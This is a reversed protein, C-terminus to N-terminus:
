YYEIQHIIVSTPKNNLSIIQKTWNGYDDYEYLHKEHSTVNGMVGYMLVEVLNNREDYRYITKTVILNSKLIIAEIKNNQDDYKYRTIVQNNKLLDSQICEIVNDVSDSTNIEKLKLKEHNFYNTERLKDNRDFVKEITKTLRSMISVYTILVHNGASDLNMEQKSIIKGEANTNSSEVLYNSSSFRNTTLGSLVGSTNFVACELNNGKNDYKYVSKLELYGKSNYSSKQLLLGQRSFFSKILYSNESIRPNYSLPDKKDMPEHISETLVKIKGTPENKRKQECSFAAFGILVFSLYKM